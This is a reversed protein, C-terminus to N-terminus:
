IITTPIKWTFYEIRYKGDNNGRQIQITSPILTRFPIATWQPQPYCIELSAFALATWVHWSTLSICSLLSACKVANCLSSVWCRGAKFRARILYMLRYSSVLELDLTSNQFGQLFKSKREGRGGWAKWRLSSAPSHSAPSHSAPDRNCVKSSPFLFPATMPPTGDSGQAPKWKWLLCLSHKCAPCRSKVLRNQEIAIGRGLMRASCFASLLLVEM